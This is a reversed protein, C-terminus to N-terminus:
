FDVFENGCDAFNARFDDRRYKIRIHDPRLIGIIDTSFNDDQGFVDFNRWCRWRNRIEDRKVV